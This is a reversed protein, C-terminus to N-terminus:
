PLSKEISERYEALRAREDGSDRINKELTVSMEKYHQIRREYDDISRQYSLISKDLSEIKLATELVEIRRRIVSIESRLLAIQELAHSYVGMDSFTHGDGTNGLLSAGEEDLFKDTYERASLITLSDIRKDSDKIRLRLEDLRRSPNDSASLTELSNKVFSLDAELSEARIKLDELQKATTKLATLATELRTDLSGDGARADLIGSSLLAAAGDSLIKMVRSKHQRINSALGAMKFQAFVKGFFGSEELERRLNEQKEELQILANGELSAKEYTTGFCDADDETYQGYFAQGLEELQTKYRTNEEFLKKELEKRFQILEQQRTLASKIELIAQTDAERSSMLSQWNDIREPSLAGALITSDSSDKFLKGGFQLYFASLAERKEDLSITLNQITKRPSDM